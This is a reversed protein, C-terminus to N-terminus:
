HNLVLRGTEGGRFLLQSCCCPHAAGQACKRAMCAASAAASAATVTAAGLLGCMRKRSAPGDAFRGRGVGGAAVVRVEPPCVVVTPVVDAVVRVVRGLAIVVGGVRAALGGGVSGGADHARWVQVVQCRLHAGAGVGIRVV